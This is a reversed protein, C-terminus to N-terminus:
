ARNTRAYNRMLRTLVSTMTEGKRQVAAAFEDGLDQPVYIHISRLDARRQNPM